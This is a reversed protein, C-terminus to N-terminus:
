KIIKDISVIAGNLVTEKIKMMEEKSFPYQWKGTWWKIRSLLNTQVTCHNQYFKDKHVFLYVFTTQFHLITIPCNKYETISLCHIKM